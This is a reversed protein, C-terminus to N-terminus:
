QTPGTPKPRPGVRTRSEQRNEQRKFNRNGHFHNSRYNTQPRINEGVEPRETKLLRVEDRLFNLSNRLSSIENEVKKSDSSETARVARGKQRDAVRLAELRVAITEAENITKPGVERLRLRIESEPIADIFFDLALTDRVIASTGPYARRTLKKISQALEPLTENRYRMRSQLEARYVEARNDSGFRNKLISVLCDFDHREGDTMENLIARASGSLSSALLLAKTRVNWGNLESLLNFQTLYEELDDSGDFLQPKIKFTSDFKDTTGNMAVTTSNNNNGMVQGSSSESRRRIPRAPTSMSSAGMRYEFTSLMDQMKNSFDVFCKDMVVRMESKAEDVMRSTMGIQESHSDKNTLGTDINPITENQEEHGNPAPGFCVESEDM